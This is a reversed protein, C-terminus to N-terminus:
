GVRWGQGAYRRLWAHVRQRTVGYRGAVDVVAAGDLVELVARYRQEVLGLEVLVVFPRGRIQPRSCGVAFFSVGSLHHVRLGCLPTFCTGSGSDGLYRFRTGFTDVLFRLWLTLYSGSRM